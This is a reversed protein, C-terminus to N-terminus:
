HLVDVINLTELADTDDIDDYIAALEQRMESRVMVVRGSELDLYYSVEWSINDMAMIIEGIDIKNQNM